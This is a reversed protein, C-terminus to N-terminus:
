RREPRRDALETDRASTIDVHYYTNRITAWGRHIVIFVRLRIFVFKGANHQFMQSSIEDFVFVEFDPLQDGSCSYGHKLEAM